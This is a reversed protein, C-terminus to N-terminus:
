MTPDNCSQVFGQTDVLWGRLTEHWRIPADRQGYLSGRLRFVRVRANRHAKYAVYRPPEGEGYEDGKLFATRVDGTALEEPEDSGCEYVEDQMAILLKISSAMPTPADLSKGETWSKRETHGMVLLRMKLRDPKPEPNMRLRPAREERLVREREAGHLEVLRRGVM